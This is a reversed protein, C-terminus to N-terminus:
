RTCIQSNELPTPCSLPNYTNKSNGPLVASALWEALNFQSQDHCCCEVSIFASPVAGVRGKYLLGPKGVEGGSVATM